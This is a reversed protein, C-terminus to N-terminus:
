RSALAAFGARLRDEVVEVTVGLLGAVQDNTFGSFHSLYISQRLEPALADLAEPSLDVNIQPTRM